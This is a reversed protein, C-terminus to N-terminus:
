KKEEVVHIVENLSIDKLNIWAVTFPVEEKKTFVLYYEM